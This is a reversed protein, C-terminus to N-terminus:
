GLTRNRWVIPIPKTAPILVSISRRRSPHADSTGRPPMLFTSGYMHAPKQSLRAVPITSNMISAVVFDTLGTKQVFSANMPTAMASQM